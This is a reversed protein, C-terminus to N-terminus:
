PPNYLPVNAPAPVEIGVYFPKLRHGNVKFVEGTRVPMLKWKSCNLIVHQGVEFDMQSVLKDHFFKTKEKYIRSNESAKSRVGCPESVFSLTLTEKMRSSDNEFAGSANKGQESPQNVSRLLCADALFLLFSHGISDISLVVSQNNM